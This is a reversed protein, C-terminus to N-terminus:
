SSKSRTFIQSIWTLGALTFFGFSAKHFTNSITYNTQANNPTAAELYSAYAHRSALRCGVGTALCAVTRAKRRGVRQAFIKEHEIAMTLSPSATLSPPHSNLWATQDLSHRALQGKAANSPALTLLFCVSIMALPTIRTTMTEHHQASEIWKM